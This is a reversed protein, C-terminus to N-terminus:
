HVLWYDLDRVREHRNLEQLEEIGTAINEETPVEVKAVHGEALQNGPVQEVKIEKTSIDGAKGPQGDHAGCEPRPYITEVSKPGCVLCFRLDGCLAIFM